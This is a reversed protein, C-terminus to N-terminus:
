RWLRDWVIRGVAGFLTAVTVLGIFALSVIVWMAVEEARARTTRRQPAPAPEGAAVPAIQDIGARAQGNTSGAPREYRNVSEAFAARQEDALMQDVSAAARLVERSEPSLDRDDAM